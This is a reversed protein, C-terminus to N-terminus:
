VLGGDVDGDGLVYGLASIVEHYAEGVTGAPLLQLGYAYFDSFLDEAEGRIHAECPAM